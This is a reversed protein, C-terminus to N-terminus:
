FEISRNHSVAKRQEKKRIMEFPDLRKREKFMSVDKLSVFQGCALSNVTKVEKIEKTLFPCYKLWLYECYRCTRLGKNEM